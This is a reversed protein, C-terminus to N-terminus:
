RPFTGSIASHKTRCKDSTWALYLLNIALETTQTKILKTLKPFYSNIGGTYLSENGNEQLAFSKLDEKM